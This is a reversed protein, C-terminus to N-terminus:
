PNTHRALDGARFRTVVRDRGPTLYVVRVEEDDSPAVGAFRWNAMAQRAVREIDGPHDPFGDFCPRYSVSDCETYCDASTM